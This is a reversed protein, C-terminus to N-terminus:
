KWEKSPIADNTSKSGKKRQRRLLLVCLAVAVVAVIVLVVVYGLDGQLGLIGTTSSNPSGKSTGSATIQVVAHGLYSHSSLAASVTIGENGAINGAKFSVLSGGTANLNGLSDNLSWIYVITGPCPGNSCVPIAVLLVSGGAAVTDAPPSISVATLENTVSASITILSTNSVVKGNLDASIVLTVQGVHSGATFTTSPGTAPAVSGFSSLNLAWAYTVGAPCPSISCMAGATFTHNGGTPLSVSSPSVQVEILSPIQAGTVTIKSSNMVMMNGQLVTVILSVVGTSKGARFGVNRGVSVNLSGYATTNLSWSYNLYPSCTGGTCTASATFNTQNMESVSAVTPSVTVSALPPPPKSIIVIAHGGSVVTKNLSVNLWVYDTGVSLGAVFKVTSSTNGVLTGLSNSVTWSYNLTPCIGMNCVPLATFNATGTTYISQQGPTISASTLTVPIGGMSYAWSDGLFVSGSGGFLLAYGDATDFSFGPYGRISPSNTPFLQVWKGTVFSWTDSYMPYGADNGGFLVVYKDTADYTFAAGVRVGPAVTTSVPTWQGTKYEWTDNMYSLSSNYGGFMVVYGDRADYTMQSNGRGPPTTTPYRESWQGGVFTWTDALYGSGQTGGFLLVYGDAADYTMVSQYRAVPSTTPHLESWQGGKFEWTDGLPVGSASSGGFLLVYGDTGDYTMLADTRPSPSISPSLLTWQGGKYEWTDNFDVVGNGGGFLVVYGDAADYTMSPSARPSPSTLIESWLGASFNWTDSYVPSGADNGGFLIVMKDAVDYTLGAGVRDGPAITTTDLTWQGGKFEWTDNMYSLSSNYGGFLVVYGDRGDYTMQSNGRGPPPSTPYIETWQGAVFEWTDAYYGAGGTGGFLVVAKDAADYAMTSQYRASPSNTPHLETWQGGKFEWTDGLPVGSNSIGGFLLVYGDVSDYTMLADTRASPSLSPSLPTWQGAKFEWTDNIYGSASSGGFLLVYGDAADYTMSPSGRGAPSVTPSIGAWHGNTFIYTTASLSGSTSQGGFLVTYGDTADYTMGPYGLVPLTTAVQTWGGTSALPQNALSPWSISRPSLDQVGGAKQSSPASSGARTVALGASYRGRPQPAHIYSTNLSSATLGIPVISSMLVLVIIGAATAMTFLRHASLM